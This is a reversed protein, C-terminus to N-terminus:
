TAVVPVMLVTPSVMDVDRLTTWALLEFLGVRSLILICLVQTIVLFCLLLSFRFLFLIDVFTGSLLSFVKQKTLLANLEVPESLVTKTIDYEIM